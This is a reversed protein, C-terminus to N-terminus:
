EAVPPPYVERVYHDVQRESLRFHMATYYIILSFVALIALDVYLPIEGKGGVLM